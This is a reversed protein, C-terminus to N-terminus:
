VKATEVENQLRKILIDENSKASIAEDVSAFESGPKNPVFKVFEFKKGGNADSLTQLFDKMEIPQSSSPVNIGEVDVDPKIRLGKNINHNIRM